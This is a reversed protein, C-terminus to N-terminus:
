RAACRSRFRAQGGYLYTSKAIISVMQDFAVYFFAAGLKSLRDCGSWPRARVPGVFGGEALDPHQPGTGQRVERRVRGHRGASEPCTRAWSSCGSTANWRRAIVARQHGSTISRHAHNRRRETGPRSRSQHVSPHVGRRADPFPSDLAFQWAADVETRCRRAQRARGRSRLGTTWSGGASCSSPDRNTRWEEVEAQSRHHHLGRTRVTM